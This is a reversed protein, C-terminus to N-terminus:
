RPRELKSTQTCRRVMVEVGLQSSDRRAIRYGGYAPFILLNLAALARCGSKSRSPLLSLRPQSRQMKVKPPPLAFAPAPLAAAIAALLHNKRIEKVEEGVMETFIKWMKCLDTQTPTTQDQLSKKLHLPSSLESIGAGIGTQPQKYAGSSSAYDRGIRYVGVGHVTEIRNGRRPHRDKGNGKM